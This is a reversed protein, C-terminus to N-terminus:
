LTRIHPSSLFKLPAAGFGKQSLFTKTMQAVEAAQEMGLATLPPDHKYEIHPKRAEGVQDLREGHRVFVMMCRKAAKTDVM